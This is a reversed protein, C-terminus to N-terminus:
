NGLGLKLRLSKDGKVINACKFEGMDNQCVGGKVYCENCEKTVVLQLTFRAPWKPFGHLTLDPAPLYIISCNHPAPSTNSATTYYTHNANGCQKRFSTEEDLTSTDNPCKFLTLNHAFVHVIPSSSPLSLMDFTDDNCDDSKLLREPEDDKISVSNLQTISEFEFWYGEEKLQIKPSSRDSCDVTYLGCEPSHTKNKFPFGISGVKENCLYAPCHTNHGDEVAYHLVVLHSLVSFILLVVPAM